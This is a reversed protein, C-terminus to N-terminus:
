AIRPQSSLAAPDFLYLSMIRSSYASCLAKGHVKSKISCFNPSMWDSEQIKLIIRSKELVVDQVLPQFGEALEPNDRREHHARACMDDRHLFIHVERCSFSYHPNHAKPKQGNHQEQVNNGCVDANGLRVVRVAQFSCPWSTKFNGCRVIQIGVDDCPTM